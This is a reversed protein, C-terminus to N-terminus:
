LGEVRAAYAALRERRREERARRRADGAAPSFARRLRVFGRCRDLMPRDDPLVRVTADLGALLRGIWAARLGEALGCELRSITSQSLGCRGALARQSLGRELRLQRFVGGLVQLAERTAPDLGGIKHSM